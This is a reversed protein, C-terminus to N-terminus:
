NASRCKSIKSRNGCTSMRCWKRGVGRGTNLFLGTCGNCESLRNLNPNTMLEAVTLTLRSRILTEGVETVNIVWDFRKETQNLSAQLYTSKIQESIYNLNDAADVKRNAICSFLEWCHDRLGHLKSTERLATRKPIELLLKAENQNVIDAESAWSTIVGWDPLADLKREKGLDDYTNLFDLFVHGGFFGYKQWYHRNTTVM